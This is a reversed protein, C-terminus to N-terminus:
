AIRTTLDDTNLTPCERLGHQFHRLAGRLDEPLEEPKLESLPKALAEAALFTDRSFDLFRWLTLELANQWSDSITYRISNPLSDLFKQYGQAGLAAKLHQPGKSYILMASALDRIFSFSPHKPQPLSAPEHINFLTMYM